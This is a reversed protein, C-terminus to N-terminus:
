LINATVLNYITKQRALPSAEKYCEGIWWSDAMQYAYGYNRSDLLEWLSENDCANNVEKPTCKLHESFRKLTAATFNVVHDELAGVFETSDFYPMDGSGNIGNLLVDDAISKQMTTGIRGEGIYARLRSSDCSFQTNPSANLGTHVLQNEKCGLFHAKAPKIESLFSKTQDITLAEANSPFGVVFDFALIKKCADYFAPLPMSGKQMPMMIQAGKTHLARIRKIHKELRLLSDVQSGVKDPAVFMLNQHNITCSNAIDEYRDLVVDFDLPPCDKNKLALMFEGFASSDIMVKGGDAAYQGLIKRVPASTELISVGVNSKASIYGLLDSRSSAGSFYLDVNSDETPFLSCQNKKEEARQRMIGWDFCDEVTRKPSSNETYQVGFEFDSQIDQQQISLMDIAHM